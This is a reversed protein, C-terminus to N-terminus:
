RRHERDPHGACPDRLGSDTNEPTIVVSDAAVREAAAPVVLRMYISDLSIFFGSM